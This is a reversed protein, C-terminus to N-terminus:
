VKAGFEVGSSTDTVSIIFGNWKISSGTTAQLTVSGAPSKISNSDMISKADGGSTRRTTRTGATPETNENDICAIHWCRDKVSTLSINFTTNGVEDLLYGSTDFEVVGSYGASNGYINKTGSCSVVINNNGRDGSAIFAYFMYQTGTGSNYKPADPHKTMAVGNYTASLTPSGTLSCSANVVLFDVNTTDHAWTLSTSAAAYKSHKENVFALAM